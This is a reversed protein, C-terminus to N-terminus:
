SSSFYIKTKRTEIYGTGGKPKKQRVEYRGGLDKEAERANCTIKVFNPLYSVRYKM